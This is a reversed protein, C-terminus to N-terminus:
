LGSKAGQSKQSKGFSFDGKFPFLNWIMSSIWSFIIPCSITIPLSTHLGLTGVKFFVSTGNDQTCHKKYRTDEIFTENKMNCPWIGEPFVEYIWCWYLGSPTIFNNIYSGAGNPSLSSLSHTKSINNNGTGLVTEPEYYRHSSHILSQIFATRISSTDEVLVTLFLVFLQSIKHRNMSNRIWM